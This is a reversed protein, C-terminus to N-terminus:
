NKSTDPQSSVYRSIETRLFAIYQGVEEPAVLSWHPSVTGGAQDTRVCAAEQYVFSKRAAGRQRDAFDSSLVVTSMPLLGFRNSLGLFELMFREAMEISTYLAMLEKFIPWSKAWPASITLQAYGATVLAFGEAPTTFPHAAKVMEAPPCDQYQCFDLDGIAIESGMWTSSGSICIRHVPPVAVREGVDILDALM